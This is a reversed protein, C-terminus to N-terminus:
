FKNSIKKISLMDLRSFVPQNLYKIFQKYISVFVSMSKIDSETAKTGDSYYGTKVVFFRERVTSKHSCEDKFGNKRRNVRFMEKNNKVVISCTMQTVDDPEMNPYMKVAEWFFEFDFDTKKVDLSSNNIEKVM